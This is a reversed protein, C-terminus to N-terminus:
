SICNLQRTAVHSTLDNLGSTEIRDLKAEKTRALGCRRDFLLLCFVSAVFCCQENSLEARCALHSNSVRLSTM